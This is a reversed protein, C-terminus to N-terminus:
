SLFDSGTESNNPHFPIAIDELTEIMVRVGVTGWEPFYYDDVYRKNVTIGGRPFHENIERLAQNRAERLADGPLITEVSVALEFFKDSVIEVPFRLNRWALAYRTKEVEYNRYSVDGGGWLCYNRDGTKFTLSRSFAGTKSKQVIFLPAEAYAEYWVLAEVMGRARIREEASGNERLESGPQEGWPWAAPTSGSILLQGKRVTEGAEVAAEGALVLIDVVLGDKSAILDCSDKLDVPERQREVVQVELFVGRLHAGVWSLEEVELLLAKELRSLDLQKKFTGVTAGCKELAALIEDKGITENGIININWVFSTLFYLLCCFLVFGVLLGRRHKGLLSLLLGGKRELIHVSCGTRRLLPRLKKFDRPAVKVIITDERSSLDHLSIGERITLNM